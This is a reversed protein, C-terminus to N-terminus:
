TRLTLIGYYKKLWISNKRFSYEQTTKAQHLDTKKANYIIM